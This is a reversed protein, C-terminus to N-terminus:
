NLQIFIVSDTVAINVIARNVQKETSGPDTVTSGVEGSSILITYCHRFWHLSQKINLEPCSNVSNYKRQRKQTSLFTPYICAVCLCTLKYYIHNCPYLHVSQM